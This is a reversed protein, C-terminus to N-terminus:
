VTDNDGDGKSFRCEPDLGDSRPSEIRTIVPLSIATKKEIILAALYPLAFGVVAGVISLVYNVKAFVFYLIAALIIPAVFLLAAYGLMAGSKAEVEVTDGVKVGIPDFVKSVVKKSSGCFYRGSCSACAEKRLVSVKATGEAVETVLAIQKM